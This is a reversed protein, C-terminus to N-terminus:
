RVAYVSLKQAGAPSIKQCVKKKKKKEVSNHFIRNRFDKM